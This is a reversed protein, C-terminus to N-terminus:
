KEYTRNRRAYANKMPAVVRRAAIRQVEEKARLSVVRGVHNGLPSGPAVRPSALSMGTCLERELLDASEPTLSLQPECFMLQCLLEPDARRMYMAEYGIL